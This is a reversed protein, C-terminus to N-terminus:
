LMAQYRSWNRTSLVNFFLLGTLSIEVPNNKKTFVNHNTYVLGNTLNKISNIKEQFVRRKLLAYDLFLYM